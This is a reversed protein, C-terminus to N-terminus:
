RCSLLTFIKPSILLMISIIGSRESQDKGSELLFLHGESQASRPILYGKQFTSNSM